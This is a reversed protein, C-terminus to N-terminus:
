VFLFFVVSLFKAESSQLEMDPNLATRSESEETLDSYGQLVPDLESCQVKLLVSVLM